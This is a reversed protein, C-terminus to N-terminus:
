QQDYKERLSKKKRAAELTDRNNVVEPFCMVCYELEDLQRIHEDCVSQNACGAVLCSHLKEKPFYKKCINCRGGVKDMVSGHGNLLLSEKTELKMGDETPRIHRESVTFENNNIESIKKKETKKSIIPESGDFDSDCNNQDKSKPSIDQKSVKILRAKIGMDIVEGSVAVRLPGLCRVQYDEKAKASQWAQANFLFAALGTLFGHV